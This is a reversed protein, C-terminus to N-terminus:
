GMLKAFGEFLQTGLKIRISQICEDRINGSGPLLKTFLQFISVEAQEGAIRMLRATALFQDFM